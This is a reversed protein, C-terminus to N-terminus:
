DVEEITPQCHDNIFHAISDLSNFLEALIGNVVVQDSNSENKKFVFNEQSNKIREKFEKLNKWRLDNIIDILSCCLSRQERQEKALDKELNEIILQKQQSIEANKEMMQEKVLQDTTLYSFIQDKLSNWECVIEERLM